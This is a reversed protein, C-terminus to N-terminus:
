DHSSERLAAAAVRIDSFPRREGDVEQYDEHGKGAILVVDEPQAVSVIWSIAAARDEIVTAATDDSFGAVIDDIIDAPNESRPNDTTVVIRDALREAVEAMQSRKGADREGGCGFLCYLKGRCHPRLAGLVSELADPTHAYDVFVNVADSELHQLRGPPAELLQMADVAAEIAVGNHLLYALVLLANEVNFDGALGLEFEGDGWSSAFRIHSGHETAVSSQLQLYAKSAVSVDTKTAVSVVDPGCRQQLRQGFDSDVNIIKCRSPYDVFLRAKADFYADMGGHYDLHDRTLNTFLVADFRMADVRGQMLAHSSVEIAAHSAGADRFDALTAHLEVAAPTTMGSEERMEAVGVGLTGIYGCAIDLRQLSQAILWAVTTKGNTGTIGVCQLERSPKAFFRDAITGVHSALDAVAILPLTVGQPAAATSADYAIAVAGAQTVVDIYDLGHSRDGACALFLDGRQVKRSDSAIGTVPVRPANAIDALLDHLMIDSSINLAPESM